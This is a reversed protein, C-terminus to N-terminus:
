QKAGEESLFESMLKRNDDDDVSRQMVKSAMELALEAISDHTGELIQKRELEIEKAAQLKMREIEARTEEEAKIQQQKAQIGAKEVIQKAEDKAGMVTAEYQTKLAKADENASKANDLDQQIMEQRKDMMKNVPGFLFKKLLLFLVLINIITWVVTWLSSLMVDM